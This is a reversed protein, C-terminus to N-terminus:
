LAESRSRVGGRRWMCVGLALVWVLLLCGAPLNIAMALPSFGTFAMAVGAVTNPVGGVIALGSLWQPYTHDVLLAVGYVIVTLGFLFSLM